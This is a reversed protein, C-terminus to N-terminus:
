SETRVKAKNIMSTMWRKRVPIVLPIEEVGLTDRWLKRTPDISDLCTM